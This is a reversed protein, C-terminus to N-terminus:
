KVLTRCHAGQIIHDQSPVKVLLYVNFLFCTNVMSLDLKVTLVLTVIISHLKEFFLHWQIMEAQYTDEKESNIEGQQGTEDVSNPQWSTSCDTEQIRPQKQNISYSCFIRICCQFM